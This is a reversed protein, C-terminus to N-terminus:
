KYGPGRLVKGPRAATQQGDDLVVVGNVLVYRMGESLARPQAFTARDTLKAYDFVIVDAALGEAIRGRDRAGIANAAAASAQAIARELSIAGLDRVYRSLVRPFAGYARPHSAILSGGAPGVDTCFSVFEERM